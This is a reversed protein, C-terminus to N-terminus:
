TQHSGVKEGISYFGLYPPAQQRNNLTVKLHWSFMFLHGYHFIHMPHPNFQYLEMLKTIYTNEPILLFIPSYITSMSTFPM